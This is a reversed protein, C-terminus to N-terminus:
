TWARDYLVATQDWSQRNNLGNFLEYARAVPTGAPAKRLGAGTRTTTASRRGGRPITGATAPITTTSSSRCARPPWPTRLNVWFDRKCTRGPLIRDIIPHPAPLMQLAHAATFLVYDGGADQVQEVFEKLKFADVARQFPLPDGHRPVTQATWHVGIGYRCKALWDTSARVYGTEGAILPLAQMGLGALALRTFERRNM